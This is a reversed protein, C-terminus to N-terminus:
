RRCPVRPASHLALIALSRPIDCLFLRSLGLRMGARKARLWLPSAAGVNTPTEAESRSRKTVAGQLAKSANLGRM